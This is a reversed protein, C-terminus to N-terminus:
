LRPVARQILYTTRHCRMANCDTMEELAQRNARSSSRLCTVPLIAPTARRIAKGFNLPPIADNRRQCASDSCSSAFARDSCATSARPHPFGLASSTHTQSSVPPPLPPMPLPTSPHRLTYTCVTSGIPSTRSRCSLKLEEAAEHIVGVARLHSVLAGYWAVNGCM